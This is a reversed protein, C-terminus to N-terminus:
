RLLEYVLVDVLGHGPLYAHRKLRGAPQFGNKELVAISARNPEYVRAWLKELGLMEFAYQVLLSVAETAYGRGWYERGVWYGIEAVRAAWAIGHLDAVGVLRDSGTEVIGFVIQSRNRRAREYWEEEDEPYLPTVGIGMFRRVEPDGFLRWILPLDGRVISALSVKEGKVYIHGPMHYNDRDPNSLRKRV